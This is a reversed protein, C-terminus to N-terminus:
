FRGLTSEYDVESLSTQCFYSSMRPSPAVQGSKLHTHARASGFLIGM